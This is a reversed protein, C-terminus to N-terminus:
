EDKQYHGEHHTHLQREHENVKKNQEKTKTAQIKPCLMMYSMAKPESLSVQAGTAEYLRLNKM